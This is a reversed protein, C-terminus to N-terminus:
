DYQSRFGSKQAARVPSGPSTPSVPGLPSVPLTVDHNSNPRTVSSLALREAYPDAVHSAQDVAGQQV